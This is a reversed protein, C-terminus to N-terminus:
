SKEASGLHVFNSNTSKPNKKEKMKAGDDMTLDPNETKATLLVPHGNAATMNLLHFFATEDRVQDANDIAIPGVALDPIDGSVDAANVVRGGVDAVFVGALHSKGSGEPGVVALRLNPWSEHNDIAALVAANADSVYYDGREVSPRTPLDLSLQEAM